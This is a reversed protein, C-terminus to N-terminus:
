LVCKQKKIHLNLTKENKFMIDCNQCMAATEMSHVKVHEKLQVNWAAAYKCQTCKYPKEGTHTRMHSKLQYAQVCTFACQDCQFPHVGQHVLQHNKMVSSSKAAFPCETCLYKRVKLHVRETHRTLNSESAFKKGCKECQCSTEKKGSCLTAHYKLHDQKLFVKGCRKCMICVESHSEKLHRRLLNCTAYKIIMGENEQCYVCVYQPNDHVLGFHTKLRGYGVKIGCEPCVRCDKKHMQARHLLVEGVSSSFFDCDKCNLEGNLHNELHSEIGEISESTFNNCLTCAYVMVCREFDSKGRDKRAISDLAEIRYKDQHDELKVHIRKTQPKKTWTKKKVNKSRINGDSSRTDSDTYSEDSESSDSLVNRENEVEDDYSRTYIKDKNFEQPDFDPDKNRKPKQFVKYSEVDNENESDTGENDEKMDTEQHENEEVDSIIEDGELYKLVKDIKNEVNQYDPRFGKYRLRTSKRHSDHNEEDVTDELKVLKPKQIEYLEEDEENSEKRKNKFVSSHETADAKDASKKHTQKKKSKVNPTNGQKYKKPITDKNLYSPTCINNSDEPETKIIIKCGENVADEPYDSEDCSRDHTEEFYHTEEEQLNEDETELECPSTFDFLQSGSLTMQFPLIIFTGIKSDKGQVDYQIRFPATIPLGRITCNQYEQSPFAANQM